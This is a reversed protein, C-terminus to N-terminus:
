VKTALKDQAIRLVCKIMRYFRMRKDKELEQLLLGPSLINKKKLALV